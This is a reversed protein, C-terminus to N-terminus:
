LNKLTGKVLVVAVAGKQMKIEVNEAIEIVVFEEGVRTIRGAMGSQTVVEDGKSLAEILARHEKAKKQQPRIMLFYLAAFMLIIPLFSMVNMAGDAAAAQAYANSILM